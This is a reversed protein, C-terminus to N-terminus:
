TPHGSLPVEHQAVGASIAFSRAEHPCTAARTADALGTEVLHDRARVAAPLTDTVTAVADALLGVETGLLARARGKFTLRVNSGMLALTADETVDLM